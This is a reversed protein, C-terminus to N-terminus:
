PAAINPPILIDFLIIICSIRRSDNSISTLHSINMDVCLHCIGKNSFDDSMMCGSAVNWFLM